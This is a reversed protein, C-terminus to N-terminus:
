TDTNCSLPFLNVLTSSTEERAGMLFLIKYNYGGTPFRSITLLLPPTLHDFLDSGHGSCDLDGYRTPAHIIIM